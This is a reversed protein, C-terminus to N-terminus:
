QGKVGFPMPTLTFRSLWHSTLVLQQSKLESQPLCHLIHLLCFPRSMM